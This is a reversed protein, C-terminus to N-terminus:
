DAVSSANNATQMAPAASAAAVTQLVGLIGLGAFVGIWTHLSFLLVGAVDAPRPPPNNTAMNAMDVIDNGGVILRYVAFLLVLSCTWLLTNVISAGRRTRTAPVGVGALGGFVALMSAVGLIGWAVNLRSSLPDMAAQLIQLKPVQQASAVVLLSQRASVVSTAAIVSGILLLIGSILFLTKGRNILSCESSRMSLAGNTSMCGIILLIGAYSARQWTIGVTPTTAPDISLLGTIVAVIAVGFFQLGALGAVGMLPGAVLLTRKM